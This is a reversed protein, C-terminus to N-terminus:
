PNPGKTVGKWLRMTEHWDVKWSSTQNSPTMSAFSSFRGKCSWCVLHNGSSRQHTVLTLASTFLNVLYCYTRCWTKTHCSRVSLKINIDRHQKIHLLERVSNLHIECVAINQCIKMSTHTIFGIHTECKLNAIRMNIHSPVTQDRWLTEKLKLEFLNWFAHPAKMNETVDGSM